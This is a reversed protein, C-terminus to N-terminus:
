SNKLILQLTLIMLTMLSQFYTWYRRCPMYVFSPLVNIIELGSRPVIIVFAVLEAIIAYHTGNKTPLRPQYQILLSPMAIPELYPSSLFRMGISPGITHLPIM